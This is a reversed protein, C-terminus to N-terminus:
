LSTRSRSARILRRSPERVDSIEPQQRTERRIRHVGQRDVPPYGQAILRGMEVSSQWGGSVISIVGAGNPQAPHHVDFTLALGDNHGYVVDTTLSPQRAPEQRM